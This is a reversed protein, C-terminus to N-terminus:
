RESTQPRSTQDGDRRRDRVSWQHAPEPLAVATRAARAQHRRLDARLRGHGRRPRPADRDGLRDLRAETYRMAAAGYGDINGFNGHGDVLRTACRFIGASACSRTTALRRRPPPVQGDGRRSDPRSKVHKRNPQLGLENMVYARSPPGAEPMASMRCRRGVIGVDCLRTRLPADGGDLCARARHQRRGIPHRGFSMALSRGPQTV